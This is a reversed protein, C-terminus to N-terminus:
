DACANGIRKRMLYHYIALDDRYWHRIATEGLQSLEISFGKPTRHAVVPDDPLAIAEPLSLLEKLRAFDNSLSEQFGYFLIDQSREELYASSTLFDVLHKNVHAISHMAWLAFQRSEEDVDFLAEALQNATRFREFVLLEDSRWKSDLKPRGQRLRSNFASVFRSVPHRVFFVIRESYPVDSLNSAHQHWVIQREEMVPRLAERMSNGGTKGIHLFHIAM